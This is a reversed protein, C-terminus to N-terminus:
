QYITKLVDRRRRSVKILKGNKLQVERENGHCNVKAVYLPNLLHSKNIRLFSQHVEQYRLLTYSSVIKKGNILHFETYNIDAKLFMIEKSEPYTKKKMVQKSQHYVFTVL